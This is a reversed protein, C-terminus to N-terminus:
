AARARQIASWIAENTLPMDIHEIGLPSLAGLVANVITQPAAIAGAQGTGKVGLPNAKTASGELHINFEPLHEARPVLYDIMSGSILQATDPAYLAHEGIAQGIGQTVGGM